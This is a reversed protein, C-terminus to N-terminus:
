PSEGCERIDPKIYKDSKEQPILVIELQAKHLTILMSRAANKQMGVDLKIM